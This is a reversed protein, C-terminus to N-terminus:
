AAQSLRGIVQVCLLGRDRACDEMEQLARSGPAEQRALEFVRCLVQRIVELQSNKEDLLAADQSRLQRLESLVGLLERLEHRQIAVEDRPFVPARESGPSRQLKTMYRTRRLQSSSSFPECDKKLKGACQGVTVKPANEKGNEKDVHPSAALDRLRHKTSHDSKAEPTAQNQRPVAEIPICNTSTLGFLREAAGCLRM